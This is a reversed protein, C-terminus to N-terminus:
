EPINDDNERFTKELIIIINNKIREIAGNWCYRQEHVTCYLQLLFIVLLDTYLGAYMSVIEGRNVTPAGTNM